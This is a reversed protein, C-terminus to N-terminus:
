CSTILFNILKKKKSQLIDVSGVPFQEKESIKKVQKKFNYTVFYDNMQSLVM